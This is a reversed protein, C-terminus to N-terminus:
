PHEEDYGTEIQDKINGHKLEGIEMEAVRTELIHKFTRECEVAQGPGAELEMRQHINELVEM